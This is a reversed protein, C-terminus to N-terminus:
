NTKQTGPVKLLARPKLEDFSVVRLECNQFSDQILWDIVGWHCVVAITSYEKKMKEKESSDDDEHVHHNPHDNDDLGMMQKLWHYLDTMRQDFQEQPEGLCAYQQGQGHPRWEVYDAAQEPSPRYHWPDELKDTESIPATTTPTTSTMTMTTLTSSAPTMPVPFTSSDTSMEFGTVFDVFDFTRALKSRPTGLDSVLYLREAALPLAVIPVTPGDKTTQLSRIPPLLGIQVTQLARTHPSTVILDLEELCHADDESLKLADLARKWRETLESSSFSSSSSPSTEATRMTIREQNIRLLTELQHCLVKTQVIGTQSLPTDHYRTRYEPTDPFIDTFNPGGFHIDNILENMHTRGHRLFILQKRKRKGQNQDIAPDHHQTQDSLAQEVQGSGNVTSSAIEDNADDQSMCTTSAAARWSRNSQLPIALNRHRRYSPVFAPLWVLLTSSTFPSEQSSVFTIFSFLIFVIDSLM